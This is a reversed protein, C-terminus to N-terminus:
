TTLMAIVDPETIRRGTYFPTEERVHLRARAARLERMLDVTDPLHDAELALLWEYDGMAFAAVTNTLVQPYDRGLIGHEVLMDRRQDAPLLYWDYSRVFPYVTAWAKSAADALFAPIHNRNFEAPRHIGMSAWSLTLTAGAATRRLSRAAAQLAQPTPAHSWVMLDAEPRFASVDYFGRIQVDSDAVAAAFSRLEAVADGAAGALEDTIAYVAFATYTVASNLDATNATPSTATM